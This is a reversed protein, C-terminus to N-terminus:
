DVRIIFRSFYLGETESTYIIANKESVSHPPVGFALVAEGVTEHGTEVSPGLTQRDERRFPTMYTPM